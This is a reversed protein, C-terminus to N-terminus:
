PSAVQELTASLQQAAQPWRRLGQRARRAGEGLRQRLGPEDLVRALAAQLARADGPPVLLGATDPVLRPIAGTLTAIVPLGHMLAEAVAMGYGEYRTPLVFVDAALYHSQLTADSVAGTLTVRSALARQELLTTLRRATAPDLERSGVCTLHWARDQLASLAKFLLEHGKRASLTAVCLLSLADRVSGDSRPGRLRALPVDDTGPEIVDLRDARVAYRQLALATEPSTVIVRRAAQLARRESLELDRARAASLGSELALPHHVLAVLRLRGAHRLAVEPMAGLALGDIMVLADNELMALTEDAHALADPTPAPFSADLPVVEVQWQLARLEAAMRRDYHYGGTATQPDGPLVLHLRRPSPAGGSM